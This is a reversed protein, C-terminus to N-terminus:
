VGGLLAGAVVVALVLAVSAPYGLGGRRPPGAPTQTSMESGGQSASRKRNYLFLGPGAGAGGAAAAPAARGQYRPPRSVPERMRPVAPRPSGAAARRSPAGRANAAGPRTRYLRPAKPRVM